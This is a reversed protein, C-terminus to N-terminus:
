TWSDMVVKNNVILVLGTLKDSTGAPPRKILLEDWELVFANRM